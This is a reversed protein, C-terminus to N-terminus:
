QGVGLHCKGDRLHWTGGRYAREEDTREGWFGPGREDRMAGIVERGDGLRVTAFIDDLGDGCCVVTADQCPLGGVFGPRAPVYHVPTGDPVHLADHM